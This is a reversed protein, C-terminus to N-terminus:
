PQANGIRSEKSGWRYFTMVSVRVNEGESSKETKWAASNSYLIESLEADGAFEGNYSGMASAVEVICWDTRCEIARISYKGPASREIAVELREEMLRAWVINREDNRFKELDKMLAICVLSRSDKGKTCPLAISPSLPFPRGRASAADQLELSNFTESGGHQGPNPDSLSQRSVSRNHSNQEGGVKPGSSEFVDSATTKANSHAAESAAAWYSTSNSNTPPTEPESAEKPADSAFQCRDMILVAILAAGVALICTAIKRGHRMRRAYSAHASTAYLVQAACWQMGSEIVNSDGLM